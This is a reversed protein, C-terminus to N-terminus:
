FCVWGSNTLNFNQIKKLVNLKFNIMQDLPWCLARALIVLGEDLREMILVFHFEEEVQNIIRSVLGPNDRLDNTEYGLDFSM